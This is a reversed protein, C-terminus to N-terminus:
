GAPKARQSVEHIMKLKEAIEPAIREPAVYAALQHYNTKRMLNPLKLRDFFMEFLRDLFEDSAKVNQWWVDNPDRLALPPVLERICERMIGGRTAAAGPQKVFERDALGSMPPLLVVKVAAAEHPVAPTSLTRVEVSEENAWEFGVGFAWSRDGTVGALAIEIPQLQQLDAWLLSARPVPLGFVDKRNLTASATKPGIFVVPNGLEIEATTFRKFNRITLKTLM